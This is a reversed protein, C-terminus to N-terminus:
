DRRFLIKGWHSNINVGRAWGAVATASPGGLLDTWLGDLPLPVDVAQDFAAFSLVIMFRETGGGGQGWRHYIVLGRGVNVGYGQADFATTGEDYSRPFFNPSRLGPFNRRIAALQAYVGILATGIADTALGLPVTRPQVRKFAPPAKSDDEWLLVDWGFEQGNRLLIAGPSTFMAIAAPQTQFWTGRGGALQAVGSHDHNELYVVPTTTPACDRQSDLARMMPTTPGGGAAVAVQTRYPDFWFGTARALNAHDIADYWWTDELMMSAVPAGAAARQRRVLELIAPLGEGVDKSRFFGSTQDFRLGDLGFTSIWYTCVDLALQLTCLNNYDLPASGFTPADTFAGCFPSQTPDEWLFAYAFDFDSSSAKVHQLVIDLFVRLGAQHAAAVLNQLRVRRDLPTAPDEVYDNEIAFLQTPDYGWSFAENDPRAACPMLEIANAGLGAIYGLRDGFADLPARGGRYGRTFDDIMVEYVVLDSLAAAALPAAPAIPAVDVVFASNGQSRGGVKACPDSVWRGKVAAFDVVYKYEYYGNPLNAPLVAEYLVGNPHAKPTMVLGDAVAWDTLGGPLKSLFDGVAVVRVINSPGGRVYQFTDVSADPVFLQLRQQGAPTLGFGFQEYM